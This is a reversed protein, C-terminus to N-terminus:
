RGSSKQTEVAEFATMKELLREYIRRIAEASLPRKSREAANRLVQEARKPSSVPLGAQQKVRGIEKVVQARENLLSVIRADIADIRARYKTLAKESEAGSAAAPILVIAAIALVIRHTM